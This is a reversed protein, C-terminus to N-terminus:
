PKRSMNQGSVTRTAPFAEGYATFGCRRVVLWAVGAGAFALLANTMDFFRDALFLHGAEIVVVLWVVPWLNSWAGKLRLPWVALLAGLPVYLWFTQIVHLASFVDERGSLSALPIFREIGLQASILDLDFLPYFPRWGWLFLLVVYGIIIARARSAGRLAQSLPGLWRRAAWAGFIMAVAYVVAAEFRVSIGLVGHGLEAGVALAAGIVAVVPWVRKVDRGREVLLTVILFAAPAFLLFDTLSVHGISFPRTFAMAIKM